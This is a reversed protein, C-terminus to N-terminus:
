NLKTKALADDLEHQLQKLLAEEQAMAAQLRESVNEQLARMRAQLEAELNKVLAEFEESTLQHPESQPWQSRLFSRAIKLPAVFARHEYLDFIMWQEADVESYGFNYGQIFPAILPHDKYLLWARWGAGCLSSQGDEVVLEDAGPMWYAAFYRADGSYGFARPLIEPVLIPLPILPFSNPPM